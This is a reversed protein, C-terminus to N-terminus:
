TAAEGEGPCSTELPPIHLWGIAVCDGRPVFDRRPELHLGALYLAEPNWADIKPPVHECPKLHFATLRVCARPLRRLNAGRHRLFVRFLCTFRKCEPLDRHRASSGATQCRSLPGSSMGTPKISPVNRDRGIVSEADAPTQTRVPLVSPHIIGEVVLRNVHGIVVGRPWAVGLQPPM